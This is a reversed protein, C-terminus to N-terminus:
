FGNFSLGFVRLCCAAHTDHHRCLALFSGQDQKSDRQVKHIHAPFVVAVQQAYLVVGRDGLKFTGEKIEKDFVVYLVLNKDQKISNFVQSTKEM